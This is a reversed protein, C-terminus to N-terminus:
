FESRFRDPYMWTDPLDQAIATSHDNVNITIMRGLHDVIVALLGALRFSPNDRLKVFTRVLQYYMKAETDRSLGHRRMTGKVEILFVMPTGDPGMGEAILDDCRIGYGPQWVIPRQATFERLRHCSLPSPHEDLTVVGGDILEVAACESVLGVSRPTRRQIAEQIGNALDLSPRYRGNEVHRANPLFRIRNPHCHLVIGYDLPALPSPRSM